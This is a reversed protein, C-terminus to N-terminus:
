KGSEKDAPIVTSVADFTDRVEKCLFDPCLVGPHCLADCAAKMASDADILRGHPPVPILPCGQATNTCIDTITCYFRKHFRCDVCNKPMEMGKIYVGSM